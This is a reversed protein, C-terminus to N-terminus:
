NETHIYANGPQKRLSVTSNSTRWACGKGAAAVNFNCEDFGDPTMAWCGYEGASRESMFNSFTLNIAASGTEVSVCDCQEQMDDNLILIRERYWGVARSDFYQCFLNRGRGEPIVVVEPIGGNVFDPCSLDTLYLTYSALINSVKVGQFFM